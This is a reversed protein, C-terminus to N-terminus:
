AADAPARERGSVEVRNRGARKAAYLARDAAECLERSTAYKGDAATACGLSITVRLVRGDGMTHETGAVKQRIREAVRQAAALPAGPLVIMFEEGGYRGVLDVERVSSALCRAVSRLVADGAQHGFTDNVTKFHDVDALVVSVPKDAAIGAALEKELFRDSRGRNNLGTLTDQESETQLRRAKVELERIAEQARAVEHSSRVSAMLMAEHAQELVGVMADGDLEVEFLEKLELAAAVIRTCIEDLVGEGGLQLETAAQKARVGAETSDPSIWIDAIPGSLAVARVLLTDAEGGVTLGGTKHSLEAMQCLRPPVHWRRLLWAGVEAHDAGLAGRELAALREHDTGAEGILTAYEPGLMRQFALVGIDQLLGGLFAEERLALPQDAMVERAAVAALVSRRWYTQLGAAQAKAGDKVLSFSLV